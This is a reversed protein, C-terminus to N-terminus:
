RTSVNFNKGPVFGRPTEVLGVAVCLPRLPSDPDLKVHADRRVDGIRQFLGALAQAFIQEDLDEPSYTDLLTSSVLNYFITPLGDDLFVLSRRRYQASTRSLVLEPYDIVKGYPNASDREFIWKLSRSGRSTGGVESRMLDLLTPRMFQLHGLKEVFVGKVLHGSAVLTDLSRRYKSFGGQLSLFNFSRPTVVTQRDVISLLFDIETGNSRISDLRRFRATALGDREREIATAIGRRLGGRSPLAKSSGFNKGYVRSLGNRLLKMSDCTLTASKLAEIVKSTASFGEELDSISFLDGVGDLWSLDESTPDGLKGRLPGDLYYQAMEPSLFAIESKSNVKYRVVVPLFVGMRVLDDLHTSQYGMLSPALIEDEWESLTFTLGEHAYLLEGVTELSSVMGGSQNSRSTVFKAFDGIPIPALLGKAIESSAIRLARLVDPDCYEVGVFGPTFGGRLLDGRELAREFLEETLKRELSYRESFASVTFPLNVKAFRHLLKYLPESLPELFDSAVFAPIVVGLGDRYKASDLPAIYRSETGLQVRLIARRDLARQIKEDVNVGIQYLSAVEDRNLDGLLSLSRSLDSDTSREELTGRRKIRQEIEVFADIELFSRLEGEGLLEQLLQHDLSLVISKREGSPADSDYLFSSVYNYALTSSFPSPRSVMRPALVVQGDGIERLIERLGDLDFLATLIERVAEYTVPFDQDQGLKGLLTNSRQRMRWLPTRSNPRGKLIMLSRYACDRFTSGFLPTSSVGALLLDEVEKEDVAILECIEDIESTPSRFVIGDNDAIVRIDDGYISSIRESIITAWPRNVGLGFPSLLVVRYEGFDDRMIEVPLRRSTPLGAESSYQEKLYEELNRYFDDDLKLKNDREVRRSRSFAGYIELLRRGLQSSRSLSDGKWFPMKGPLGAAPEVKVGTDDISTIRWSSSGLIFVEGPRSEFVMEEDLEGVRSGDPATVRYLGREVITGINSLVALRARKTPRITMSAIDLDILIPLQAEGDRNAKGSLMELVKRLATYSLGQYSYTSHVIKLVSEVALERENLESELAMSVIQQALVDLANKPVSIAEIEESIMMQATAYSVALDHRFKPIFVARSVEGVRHSARGVRQIGSSVSNPSEVQIVLDVFAMDIGLELSSTAVLAKVEGRKLRDEIQGRTEKSMSGHHAFVIEDGAEENIRNSLREAQRRSNVFVIASNVGQLRGLISKAIHPWISFRVLPDSVASGSMMSSGDENAVVSGIDSMDEVVSTLEIEMMRRNKTTVIEVRRLASEGESGGLYAAVESLPRQTASLGIRAPRKGGNAEVLSDVRALSLALHSGRKNPALAHIEDIIIYRLSRLTASAGSSLMLYLSEPTTILIDPPDKILRRREKSDTDGSRVGVDISLKPGGSAQALMEIGRLPSRLNREVDVALAKIPSIYLVSTGDQSSGNVVLDNICALFAALTKGSGTPASILTDRGESIYRWGEIQIDTPEKFNRTFWGTVIPDFNEPFSSM